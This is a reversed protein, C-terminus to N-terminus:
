KLADRLEKLVEPNVQYGLDQAKLLDERAEGDNGKIFYALGRYNYAKASKQNIEIAKTYDEIAKDYDEIAKDYDEVAQSKRGEIVYIKGREIYVHDDWPYIEIAKTLDKIALDYQGKVRYALGRYNYAYAYDARPNIEISKSFEKIALDYQGKEFYDYGRDNYTGIDADDMAQAAASGAILFLLGIAILYRKM